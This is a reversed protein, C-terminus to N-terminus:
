FVFFFFVFFFFIHFMLTVTISTTSTRPVTGWSDQLLSQLFHFDSPSDLGDLSIVNSLDVLINLLTRFIRPSKSDSLSRHFVVLTLQLSYSAQFLKIITMQRCLITYNWAKRDLLIKLCSRNPGIPSLYTSGTQSLTSRLSIAFFLYEM